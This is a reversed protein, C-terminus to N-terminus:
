HSPAPGGPEEDATGDDIPAGDAAAGGTGTAPGDFRPGFTGHRAGWLGAQALGFMPVLVGFALITFPRLGATVLAVAVQVGFPVLLALQVDKPASGALFYLGGIGIADTRSRDVAVAFAWLFVVCGVFFLVLDVAVALVGFRDQDVVALVATVTFVVTGVRSVTIIRAGPRGSGAEDAAPAAAPGACSM